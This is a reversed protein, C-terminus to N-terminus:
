IRFSFGNENSKILINNIVYKIGKYEVWQVRDRNLDINGTILKVLESYSELYTDDCKGFTCHSSLGQKKFVKNAFCLQEKIMITLPLNKRSTTNKAVNKWIKHRAELRMCWINKLPGKKRMIHPYHIMFHHKPKLTDKFLRMYQIHHEEILCELQNIINGDITRLLIIDIIKLLIFFFNWVECDEPVLDGIMLPLLHVLTMM